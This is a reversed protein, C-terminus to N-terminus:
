YLAKCIIYNLLNNERIISFGFELFKLCDLLSLPLLIVTSLLNYPLCKECHSAALNITGVSQCFYIYFEHYFLFLHSFVINALIYQLYCYKANKGVRKSHMLKFWNSRTSLIFICDITMKTKTLRHSSIDWVNFFYM